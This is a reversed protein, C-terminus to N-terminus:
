LIPISKISIGRKEYKRVIDWAEDLHASQVLADIFTNCTYADPMCGNAEMSFFLNKAEDFRGLECLAKIFATYTFNDPVLDLTLM